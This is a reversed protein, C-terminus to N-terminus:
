TSYVAKPIACLNVKIQQVYLCGNVAKLYVFWECAVIHYLLIEDFQIFLCFLHYWGIDHRTQRSQRTVRTM